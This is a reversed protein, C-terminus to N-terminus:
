MARIFTSRSKFSARTTGSNEASSSFTEVLEGNEGNLSIVLDCEM